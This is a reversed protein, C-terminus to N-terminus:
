TELSSAMAIAFRNASSSPRSTPMEDPAATHAALLTHKVRSHVELHSVVLSQRSPTAPVRCM